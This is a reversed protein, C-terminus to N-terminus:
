QNQPCGQAQVEGFKTEIFSTGKPLAESNGIKYVAEEEPCFKQAVLRFEPCTHSGRAKGAKSKQCSINIRHALQSPATLAEANQSAISPTSM